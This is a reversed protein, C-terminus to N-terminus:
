VRARTSASKEIGTGAAPATRNTPFFLSVARSFINRLFVPHTMRKMLGFIIRPRAYFKITGRRVASLLEEGSMGPPYYPVRGYYSTYAGWDIEDIKLEGSELLRIFDESGPLPMYNGFYAQDIGSNLAFDITAQIDDMSENSFGLIFSGQVILGVKKLLVINKRVEDFDWNKKMAKLTALSGSEIGVTVMYTGMKKLARVIDEDIRDIRIGGPFSFYCKLQREKIEKAFNLVHDKYFTFNEDEIIFEEFGYKKQLFEIEDVVNKVDRRRIKKGTIQHGACYTCSYPCGRSTIIPVVKTSKHFTGHQVPPYREPRLKDWDPAGYRDVDIAKHDNFVIRDGKRYVLNPITSIKEDIDGALLSRVLRELAEEGEGKVVYDLDPNELLTQEPLGSPHPGGAVIVTRLFLERIKPVLYNLSPYVDSFVQFGVVMVDNYIQLHDMLQESSMEELQCDIFISDIGRIPDLAKLLYGIGLPPTKFYVSSKPKILIVKKLKSERDTIQPTEDRGSVDPADAM